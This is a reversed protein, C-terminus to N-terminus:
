SVEWIENAFAQFLIIAMYNTIPLGKSIQLNQEKRFKSTCPGLRLKDSGLFSRLQVGNREWNM